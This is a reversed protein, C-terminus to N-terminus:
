SAREVPQENSAALLERVLSARRVSLPVTLHLVRPPSPGIEPLPAPRLGRIGLDALRSEMSGDRDPLVVWPILAHGSNVPFGAQTLAVVFASKAALIKSRLRRFADGNALLRLALELALESIQMPGVLQRVRTCIVQSAVAFGARMGGCSYGKTFGRLVVLNGTSGVLQVASELPELYPAASEDVLVFAGCAEAAQAIAFLRDLPLVDGTFAPRDLHVLAPRRSRLAQLVAEGDVSEPVLDARAGRGIAWAELDPHVLQPALISGAGALGALDHLLATVGAGFTVQETSLPCDFYSAVIPAGRIGGYRDDL